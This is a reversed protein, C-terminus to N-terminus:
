AIVSLQQKPKVGLVRTIDAAEGDVEQVTNHQMWSLGHKQSSVFWVGVQRSTVSGNKKHPKSKKHM